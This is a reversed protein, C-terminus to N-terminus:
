TSKVLRLRLALFYKDCSQCQFNLQQFLQEGHPEAGALNDAPPSLGGWAGVWLAYDELIRILSLETSAARVRVGWVACWWWAVIRRQACNLPQRLSHLITPRRLECGIVRKMSSSNDFTPTSHCLAIACAVILCILKVTTQQCTCMHTYTLTTTLSPNGDSLRFLTTYQLIQQSPIPTTSKFHCNAHICLFFLEKLYAWLRPYRQWLKWLCESENTFAPTFSM